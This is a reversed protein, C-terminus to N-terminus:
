QWHARCAAAAYGQMRFTCNRLSAHRAGQALRAPTDENDEPPKRTALLALPLLRAITEQVAPDLGIPLNPLM